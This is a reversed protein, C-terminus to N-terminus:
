RRQHSAAPASANCTNNVEDLSVLHVVAIAESPCLAVIVVSDNFATPSLAIATIVIVFLLWSKLAFIVSSVATANVSAFYSLYKVNSVVFGLPTIKSAFVPVVVIVTVIVKFSNGTVAIVLAANM